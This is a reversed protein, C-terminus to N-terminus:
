PTAPSSARGLPRDAQLGGARPTILANVEAMAPHRVVAVDSLTMDASTEPANRPRKM